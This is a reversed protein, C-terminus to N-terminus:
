ATEYKAYAERAAKAAQHITVCLIVKFAILALLGKLAQKQDRTM